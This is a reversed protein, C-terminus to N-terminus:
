QGRDEVALLTTRLLWPAKSRHVASLRTWIRRGLRRRYRMFTGLSVEGDEVVIVLQGDMLPGRAELRIWGDGRGGIRWGAVHEPSRRWKLRLGILVRFILQGKVGAIDEFATRAWTEPTGSVAGALTFLDGYDPPDFTCLDSIATPIEDHERVPATSM